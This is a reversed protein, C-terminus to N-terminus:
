VEIPGAKERRKAMVYADIISFLWSLIIFIFCVSILTSSNVSTAQSAERYITELDFAGNKQITELVELARITAVAVIIGFAGCTVAILSIGRGYLKLHLQGAGPFALASLLVAKTSLKMSIKKRKGAKDPQQLDRM